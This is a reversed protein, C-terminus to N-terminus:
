DSCPSRHPPSGPNCIYQQKHNLFCKLKADFVCRSDCQMTWLADAGADQKEAEALMLPLAELHKQIRPMYKAIKNARIAHKKAYKKDMSRTVAGEDISVDHEVVFKVFGALEMHKEHLEKLPLERSEGNHHYLPQKASYINKYKNKYKNTEM